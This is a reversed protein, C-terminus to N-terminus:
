RRCPKTPNPPPAEPLPSLRQIVSWERATFIDDEQEPVAAMEPAKEEDCGYLFLAFSSIIFFTLLRM